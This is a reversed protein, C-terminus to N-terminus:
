PATAPAVVLVNFSGPLMPPRPHPQENTAAAPPGFQAASFYLRHSHPDLAMTRSGPQTPLNELVHFHDADDEKVVTLSGDGNSSYAIGLAPDFAAADPHSGIPLEAVLKGSGSDLVVMKNNACVSFLRQHAADIALGTPHACAGLPWQALLKASAADIVALQSSGEMNVFVRGQGDVAGFEPDPGVAITAVEKHTGADLVSIDGSRHNIVFVRRQSPEYLIADPGNGSIKVTDVIQLTNLDLVSVANGKGNSIFGFQEAVAVGHTGQLGSLTTLLKGSATDVVQVRDGRTVFLHGRQSDDSLYDWGGDGGIPWHDVVAYHSAQASNLLMACAAGLLFNLNM